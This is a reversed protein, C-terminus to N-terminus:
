PNEEDDLAHTRLTLHWIGIPAFFYAILLLLSLWQWTSDFHALVSLRWVAVSLWVFCLLELTRYLAGGFRKRFAYFLAYGTGSLIVLMGIVMM